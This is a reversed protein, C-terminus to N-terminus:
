PNRAKQKLTNIFASNMRYIDYNGNQPSNYAHLLDKLKLPRDPMGTISPNTRQSAFFLYQGDPSLSASIANFGKNNMPEGPNIAPTWGGSDTKFFFYYNAFGPNLSDSKDVACAILFDEDPSIFANFLNKNKNV